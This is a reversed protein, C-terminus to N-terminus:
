TVSPVLSFSDEAAKDPVKANILDAATVFADCLSTIKSSTSGPAVKGPWRVIFPVPHGGEWNGRKVGRWPRAGDHNHDHCIHNV